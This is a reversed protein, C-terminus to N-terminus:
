QYVLQSIVEKVGHTGQGIIPCTLGNNLKYEKRFPSAM